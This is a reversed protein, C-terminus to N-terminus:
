GTSPRSLIIALCFGLFSRDNPLDAFKRPELVFSLAASLAVIVGAIQLFPFGLWGPIIEGPRIYIIGIYVLCAIYAM